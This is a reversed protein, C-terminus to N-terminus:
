RRRRRKVGFLGFGAVLAPVGVTTSYFWWADEDRKHVIRVDEETVTPIVPEKVDRLWYIIDELFYPNGQYRIFKDTFVDADAVVFVRSESASATRTAAAALGYAQRKEEGGDFLLNVNLDNFTGDLATLVVDVRTKAPISETKELYGTRPFLTALKAANRSMTTVSAHSSYRNSYLFNKDADTQTAKVFAQDNALITKKFRLGLEGLLETMEEGEREAELCLLLRVGRDLARKLAAIEEPLFPKEPGVIFVAAADRPVESALGESVGLPKVEFRNATLLQKVLGLGPRLDDSPPETRREGHGVTFYAVQQQRSVKILAKAFSQDFSKLSSKASSMKEGVRIKEHTKAQSLVVQGNENVGAESALKYALAQDAIVLELNAQKGLADFYDRLVDLVENSGPYFLAVRVPQTLERVIQKTSESPATRGTSAMDAKVEHRKALFNVLFLASLLLALALGRREARLVRRMEYREVFAVPWVALEVGLLTFLGGAAVIPWLAWLVARFRENSSGEGSFVLPILAYLVLGLAVVASWWFLKRQVPRKHEDAASLDKARAGVAALVLIAALADFFYRVGEFGSLVREGTYVAALAIVLAVTPWFHHIRPSM